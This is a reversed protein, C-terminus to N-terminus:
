VEKDDLLESLKSRARQIRKKVNEKSISLIAAVEEMSYGQYYRLLLVDRYKSPLMAIAKALHDSEIIQQIQSYEPFGIYAEDFAVVTKRNHKRYLDIAKHETITVILAKTQPSEPDDIEEIIEIIKLFTDHVIDEADGQSHLISNAVYYMLNKYREYIVEFKCRDEASDIMSLYIIM